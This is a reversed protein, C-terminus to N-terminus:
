YVFDAVLHHLLFANLRDGVIACVDMVPFGFYERSALSLM